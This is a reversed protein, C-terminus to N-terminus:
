FSQTAVERGSITGLARWVVLDIQNNIFRGSGDGFGVNVGQRHQSRAAFVGDAAMSFTSDHGCDLTKSNPGAVHNYWARGPGGPFWWSGSSSFHPMFGPPVSACAALADDPLPFFGAIGLKVIDRDPDFKSADGDGAIRESVFITQSLGDKIDGPRTTRGSLWGPLASNSTTPGDGGHLGPSTGTCGRYNTGGAPLRDAPCRYVPVRVDRLQANATSTPPDSELGAGDEAQSVLRFAASQDVYPLLHMQWSVLVRTAEAFSTAPRGIYVTPYHGHTAAYDNLAHTQQRIHNSCESKRAQGVAALVAASGLTFLVGVIAMGVLCEILTFGLRPSRVRRSDRRM